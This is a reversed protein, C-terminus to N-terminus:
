SPECPLAPHDDPAHHDDCLGVHRYVGQGDHIYHHWVGGAPRSCRHPSPPLRGTGSGRRGNFPGGTFVVPVREGDALSRCVRHEPAETVTRTTSETHIAM